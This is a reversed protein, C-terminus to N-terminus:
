LRRKFVRPVPAPIQFLTRAEDCVELIWDFPNAAKPPKAIALYREAGLPYVKAVDRM